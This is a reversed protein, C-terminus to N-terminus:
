GNGGADFGEVVGIGSQGGVIGEWFADIGIGLGSVPGLGTILVRRSM